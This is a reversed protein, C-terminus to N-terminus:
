GYWKQARCDARHHARQRSAASCDTEQAFASQQPLARFSRLGDLTKGKSALLTELQEVDVGGGNFGGRKSATWFASKIADRSLAHIGSLGLAASLGRAIGTLPDCELSDTAPCCRATFATKGPAGAAESKSLPVAGSLLSLFFLSEYRWGVATYVKQAGLDKAGRVSLAVVLKRLLRRLHQHPFAARPRRSAQRNLTKLRKTNLGM